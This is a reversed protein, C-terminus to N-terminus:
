LKKLAESALEGITRKELEGKRYVDLTTSDNKIRELDDRAEGAGLNGLLIAAYGRIETEPDQLFPIFYFAKKRLLDPKAEGIRALARLVEPLLGRDSAYQYLQPAYGAFQEPGNGIIEGIADICGWSSAATDSVASFLRQLLKSIAGPDYRAIVVSVKGLADIARWRLLKDVSYILRQLDRIIRKDQEARNILPGLDYRNVLDEVEKKSFSRGTKAKGSTTSFLPTAKELRRKGGEDTLELNGDNLRVFYLTGAVRRGQYVGGHIILHTELDYREVQKEIYDKEPLLDWAQNWDGNCGFVLAEIMATGLNHGTVDCAYVAGCPCSGVPMEHPMPTELEKPQDILAGCFPCSPREIIERGSFRSVM